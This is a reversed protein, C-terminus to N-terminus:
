AVTKALRNNGERDAHEAEEKAELTEIWDAIRERSWDDHRHFVHTIMLELDHLVECQAVPCRVTIRLIAYKMKLYAVAEMLQGDRFGHALMVSGFACSSGDEGMWTQITPKGMMAGLRIAESLKM